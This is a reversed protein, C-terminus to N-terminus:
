GPSHEPGSHFIVARRAFVTRAASQGGSSLAALSVVFTFRGDPGSNSLGAGHFDRQRLVNM